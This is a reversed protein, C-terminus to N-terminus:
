LIWTYFIFGMGKSFHANEWLNPKWVVLQLNKESSPPLNVLGPQLVTALPRLEVPLPQTWLSTKLKPGTESVGQVVACSVQMGGVGSTSSGHQRGSGPSLPDEHHNLPVSSDTNMHVGPTLPCKVGPLFDMKCIFFRARLPMRFRGCTANKKFIMLALVQEWIGYRAWSVLMKIASPSASDPGHPRLSGSLM